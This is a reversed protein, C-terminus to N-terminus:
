VDQALLADYEGPAVYPEWEDPNLPLYGFGQVELIGDQARRAEVLVGAPLPPGGLGRVDKTLRILVLAPM